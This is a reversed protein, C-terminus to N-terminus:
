PRRGGKGALMAEVWKVIEETTEVPDMEAPEPAGPAFYKITPYGEVKYEEPTATSKTADMSGFKVKGKLQTAAEAWHSALEQCFGCWPAFFEVLWVENSDLVLEKFNKDTLKVVDEGDGAAMSGEKPVVEPVVLEKGALRDEVWGVIDEASEGADFELPSGDKVGPAFYKITPYGDVQFEDPTAHKSADMAGFNIKGKMLTAAEAWADAMSVCYTCTPDYFEVLWGEESDLVEKKFNEDTLTVVDAGEGPNTGTGGKHYKGEIADEAWRVIEEVTAGGEYDEPEPVNLLCMKGNSSPVFYKISPYGEIEYNDAVSHKTADIAGLNMRGKLETAAKAWPGALDECHPCWPGYFQVLWGLKSCFLKRKFNDNTLEIVDEGEGPRLDDEDSEDTDEDLEDGYQSQTLKKAASLGKNILDQATGEGNYDDPEKQDDIFIKIAPTEEIDYRSELKPHEDVNVVGVKVIGKLAKAATVIESALKQSKKCRPAYFKVFWIGDGDIVKEEFNDTTLETVPDDYDYLGFSSGVLGLLVLFGLM